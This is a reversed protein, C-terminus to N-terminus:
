GSKSWEMVTDRGMLLDDATEPVEYDPITDRGKLEGPAVANQYFILPTSVSIKSHPLTMTIFSAGNGGEYCGGSEEAVLIGVKNSKCVAVLLLGPKM